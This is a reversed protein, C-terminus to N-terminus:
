CTDGGTRISLVHVLYHIRNLRHVTTYLMDLISSSLSRSALYPMLLRCSVSKISGSLGLLEHLRTYVAHMVNLKNCLLSM